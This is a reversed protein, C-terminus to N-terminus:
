KSDPQFFLDDLIRLGDCTVSITPHLGSSFAAVFVQKGQRMASEILPIYDGDGSLIHIEEIDSLTLSSMLDVTLSIDAKHSKDKQKMKHFVHPIPHGASRIKKSPDRCSWSMTCIQDRISDLKDSDGCASTYYHVRIIDLLSEDNFINNSWVYVNELHRTTALPKRDDEVMAQYRFVLNEGDVFVLAKRIM